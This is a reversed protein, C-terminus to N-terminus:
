FFESAIKEFEDKAYINPYFEGHRIEKITLGETDSVLPMPSSGSILLMLDAPCKKILQHLPSYMYGKIFSIIAYKNNVGKKHANSYQKEVMARIDGHNNFVPVARGLFALVSQRSSILNYVLTGVVPLPLLFKVFATDAYHSGLGRDYPNIAIIKDYLAANLAAGAMAFTSSVNLAIVNTKEGIVNKIFENIILAYFYSNYEMVQKDSCGFGPLDIRYVKFKEILINEDWETKGAGIGISHILLVPKGSGKVTYAIDGYRSKYIGSPKSKGEALAFVAMNAIHIAGLAALSVFGATKILTKPKIKM